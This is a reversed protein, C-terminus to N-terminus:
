LASEHWDRLMRNVQAECRPDLPYSQYPRAKLLGEFSWRKTRSQKPGQSRWLWEGVVRVHSVEHVEVLTLRSGHLVIQADRRQDPIDPRSLFNTEGGRRVVPEDKFLWQPEEIGIRSGVSILAVTASRLPQAFELKMVLPPEDPIFHVSGVCRFNLVREDFLETEIDDM